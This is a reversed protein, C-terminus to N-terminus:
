FDAPDPLLSSFVKFLPLCAVATAILAGGIFANKKLDNGGDEEEQVEMKPEISWINSKGDQDKSRGLRVRRNMDFRLKEDTRDQPAFDANEDVDNQEAFRKLSSPKLATSSLRTFAPRFANCSLVVLLLLLVVAKNM